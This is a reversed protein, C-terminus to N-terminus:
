ATRGGGVWGLRVLGGWVAWGLAVLAAGVLTYFELLGVWPPLVWAATTYGEELLGTSGAETREIVAGNQIPPGMPEEGHNLREVDYPMLRTEREWVVEGSANVELVRQGFTDVVLTNGNPLRDADRPWRLGGRYTWTRNWTGDPRQHYEVVRNNESDAVLVARPDRSILAPNHQEHLIDHADEEGLVWETEKTTRNVAVVRDFNRPSLLFTDDDVVDVDNLHTYGGVGSRETEDGEGAEPYPAFHNEFEYEWVISDNAADYVYARHNFKDAVVYRDPGLKDVDHTDLPTEFERYV